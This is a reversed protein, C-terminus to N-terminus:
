LEDQMLAKCTVLAYLLFTIQLWLAYGMSIGLVFQVWSNIAVDSIMIALGLWAGFKPKVWVMVSVLLDLPLLLTWYFNLALPVYDYPLWGGSWIDRAHTSAGALFCITWIFRVIERNFM